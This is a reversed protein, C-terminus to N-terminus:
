AAKRQRQIEEIREVKSLANQLDTVLDALDDCAERLDEAVEQSLDEIAELDWKESRDLLADIDDVISKKRPVPPPAKALKRAIPPAEEAVSTGHKKARDKALREVERAEGRYQRDTSVTNYTIRRAKSVAEKAATINKGEIARRIAEAVGMDPSKQLLPYARAYRQIEVPKRRVSQAYEDVTVREANSQDLTWHWRLWALERKAKDIAGELRDDEDIISMPLTQSTKRAM